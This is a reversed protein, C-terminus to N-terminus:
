LARQGLGALMKREILEGDLRVRREGGQMRRALELRGVVVDRAREVIGRLLDARRVAQRGVLNGIMRPGAGLAPVIEDVPPRVFIGADTGAGMAPEVDVARAM